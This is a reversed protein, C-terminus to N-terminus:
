HISAALGAASLARNTIRRWNEREAASLSSFGPPERVPGSPETLPVDDAPPPSATAPNGWGIRALEVLARARASDGGTTAMELLGAVITRKHKRLKGKRTVYLASDLWAHFVSSGRLAQGSAEGDIKGVHHVLAVSCHFERQWLRLKDLLPDMDGAKD